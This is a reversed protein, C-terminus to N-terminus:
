HSEAELVLVLWDALSLLARVFHILSPCMFWPHTWALSNFNQFNTNLLLVTCYEAGCWFGKNGMVCYVACM